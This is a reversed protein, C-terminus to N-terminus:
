KLEGFLLIPNDDEKLSPFLTLFDKNGSEIIKESWVPIIIEGNSQWYFEVPEIMVNEALLIRKFTKSKGTSKEVLALSQLNDQGLSGMFSILMYQNNEAFFPVHGIFENSKEERKTVEYSPQKEWFDSPPMKNGINLTYKVKVTDETAELIVNSQYGAILVKGQYSTFGEDFWMHYPRYKVLNMNKVVKKTHINISQFEHKTRWGHESRLLLISNNLYTLDKLDIGSLNIRSLFKGESNYTVIRGKGTRDAFSVHGKDNIAINVGNIYEEPGEGYRDINRLHKGKYDFLIVEPGSSKSDKIYIIGNKNEIKEINENLLSEYKTELRVYRINKFLDGVKISRAKKDYPIDYYGKVGKKSSNDEKRDRPPTNDITDTHVLVETQQVDKISNTNKPKSCAIVFLFPLIFVYKRNIMAIIKTPACKACRFNTSM